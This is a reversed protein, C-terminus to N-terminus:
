KCLESINIFDSLHLSFSSPLSGTSSGPSGRYIDLLIRTTLIRENMVEFYAARHEWSVEGAGGTWVGKERRALGSGRELAM